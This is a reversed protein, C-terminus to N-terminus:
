NLINDVNIKKYSDNYEEEKKLDIKRKEAYLIGKELEQFLLQIQIENAACTINLRASYFHEYLSSQKKPIYDVSKINEGLTNLNEFYYYEKYKSGFLDFIKNNAIQCLDKNMLGIATIRTVQNVNPSYVYYDIFNDNKKIPTIKFWKYKPNFYLIEHFHKSKTPELSQKYNQIKSPVTIGFIGNISNPSLPVTVVADPM